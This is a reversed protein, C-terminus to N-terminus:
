TEAKRHEHTRLHEQCYEFDGECTSCYRFELRPDDKETRGCTTCKHITTKVVPAGTFRRMRRYASGRNRMDSIIDAGFFIFYNAVAVLAAAKGAPPATLVTFVFFLWNLWALYKVKVPLILFLLIEFDPYIYAFALFLSLNLYLASSGAGTLFAALVTGIMGTLYYANFRFSGWEHELGTGVMYYFYLIFAIWLISAAPPILVFTVVRWVEGQLVLRPELYLLGLASSEPYALTLLYVLLNLGIIYTM